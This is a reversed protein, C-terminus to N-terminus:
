STMYTRLKVVHASCNELSVITLIPGEDINSELMWPVQEGHNPYVLGHQNRSLTHPISMGEAWIERDKRGNWDMERKRQNM